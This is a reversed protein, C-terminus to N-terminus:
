KKRAQALLALITDAQTSYIMREYDPFVEQAAKAAAEEANIGSSIYSETKELWLKIKEGSPSQTLGYKIQLSHAIDAM